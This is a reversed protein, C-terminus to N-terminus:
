ASLSVTEHRRAVIEIPVDGSEDVALTLHNLECLEPILIRINANLAEMTDAETVLGPIDDSWATWVSAEEDWLANITYTTERTMAPQGLM